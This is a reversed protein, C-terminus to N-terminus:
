FVVEVRTDRFELPIKIPIEGTLRRSLLGSVKDVDLSGCGQDQLGVVINNGYCNNLTHALVDIRKQQVAEEYTRPENTPNEPFKKTGLTEQMWQVIRDSRTIDEYHRDLEVVYDRDTNHFIRENVDEAIWDGFVVDKQHERVKAAVGKLTRNEPRFFTNYYAGVNLGILGLYCFYQGVMADPISLFPAWDGQMLLAASWVTAMFCGNAALRNTPSWPKHFSDLHKEASHQLVVTDANEVEDALESMKVIKITQGSRTLTDASGEWGFGANSMAAPTSCLDVTSRVTTYGYLHPIESPIQWEYAPRGHCQDRLAEARYQQSAGMFGSHFEPHEWEEEDEESLYGVCGEALAETSMRLWNGRRDEMNMAMMERIAEHKAAM